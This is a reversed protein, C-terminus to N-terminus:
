TANYKGETQNSFANDGNTDIATGILTGTPTPRDLKLNTSVQIIKARFKLHVAAYRGQLDLDGPLTVLYGNIQDL